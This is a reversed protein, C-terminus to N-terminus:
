ETETKGFNSVTVINIKNKSRMGNEISIEFYIKRTIIHRNWKWSTKIDKNNWEPIGLFLMGTDTIIENKM